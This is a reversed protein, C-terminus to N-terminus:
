QVGIVATWGEKGLKMRQELVLKGRGQIIKGILPFVQLAEPSRAWDAATVRYTYYLTGQRQGDSATPEDWRVIRDLSLKAACLDKHHEIEKGDPGRTIAEKLVYFKRGTRTLGFRKVLVTEKRDASVRQVTADTSTVLQLKQLVPLQVADRTGMAFATAPVDIPWDFKGLCLHGQTALYKQLALQLPKEVPTATDAWADAACVGFLVAVLISRIMMFAM